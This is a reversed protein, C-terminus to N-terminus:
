YLTFTYTVNRVKTFPKGNKMAPQFRINKAANVAQETLGFGLGNVPTISGIQGNALFTVKLVVTGQVQNQRAADTYIARPKSLILVDRNIVTNQTTVSTEPKVNNEKELNGTGTGNGFGTGQGTGQGTGSGTGMGGGQERNSIGYPQDNVTTPTPTPIPLEPNVEPQSNTPCKSKYVIKGNINCKVLKRKTTKKQSFTEFSGALVFCLAIAILIIKRM